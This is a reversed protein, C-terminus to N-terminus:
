IRLIQLLAHPDIFTLCARSSLLISFERRFGPLIQTIPARDSEYRRDRARKSGSTRCAQEDREESSADEGAASGPIAQLPEPRTENLGFALLLMLLSGIVSRKM